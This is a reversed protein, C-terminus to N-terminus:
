QRSENQELLFLTHRYLRNPSYYDAQRLIRFRGDRLLLEAQEDQSRINNGRDMRYLFRSLPNGPIPYLDLVFLYRVTRSLWTSLREYQEDSLHHLVSILMGLDFRRGPDLSTADGLVFEKTPDNAYRHQCRNIFSASTDVGLYQAPSLNAWNGTGCGIDVVSRYEVDRLFKKIQRAKGGDVLAQYSNFVMPSEFLDDIRKYLLGSKRM